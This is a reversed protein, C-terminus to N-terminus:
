SKEFILKRDDIKPFDQTDTIPPIEDSGNVIFDVFKAIDDQSTIKQNPGIMCQNCFAYIKKTLYNKAIEGSGFDRYISSIKM